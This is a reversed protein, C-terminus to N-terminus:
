RVQVGHESGTVIHTVALCQWLAMQVWLVPITSAFWVPSWVKQSLVVPMFTFNPDPKQSTKNWSIYLQESLVFLQCLIDLDLSNTCDNTCWKSVYFKYNEFKKAHNKYLGINLHWSTKDEEFLVKTFGTLLQKSIFILYLKPSRPEMQDTRLQVHYIFFNLIWILCAWNRFASLDMQLVQKWQNLILFHSSAWFTFTNWLFIFWAFTSSQNICRKPTNSKCNELINVCYKPSLFTLILNHYKKFVIYILSKQM